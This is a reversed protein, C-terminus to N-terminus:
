YVVQISRNGSQVVYAGRIPLTIEATSNGAIDQHVLTGLVNYVTWRQGITLGSVHLKGNQIWAKLSNTHPAQSPNINTSGANVVISLPKTDSGASNMSRVTFNFTGANRPTGSISGTAYLQLGEPLSGNDIGWIMLMDGTATLSTSYEEGSTGIPLTTSTISPLIPNTPQTYIDTRVYSDISRERGAYYNSNEQSRAFLVYPTGPNLETFTLSTQWVLTAMVIDWLDNVDDEKAFYSSDLALIAYEVIQGNSPQPVAKITISNHTKNTIVTPPHVRAGEEKTQALVTLPALWLTLGMIITTTKM